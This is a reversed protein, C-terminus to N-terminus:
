ERGITRIVPIISMNPQVLVLITIWMSTVRMSMIIIIIMMMMLRLMTSRPLCTLM